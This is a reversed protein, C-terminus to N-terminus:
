KVSVKITLEQIIGKGPEKILNEVEYKLNYASSTVEKTDYEFPIATSGNAILTVETSIKIFDPIDFFVLSMPIDSSNKIILLREDNKSNKEFSFEQNTITVSNSFIAELYEEKAILKDQYYVATRQNDLAERISEATKEKAFVITSPRHEGNNIGYDFTIPNHVDSTSMMTLNKDLCWQHAKPYYTNGNVVEIGQFYEKQFLNEHLDSWVEIGEPHPYSPHNWFVFAGQDHAEKIAAISDKINLKESDKIFIANLHGPPMKRTIESGKILMFNLKDAEPKAVLFSRNNDVSVDQKHPHYEIHDTISIADLGESWAEQVRITPWVLGDSFVTHIHFDCVLSKYGLIDPINVETRNLKQAQVNICAFCILFCYITPILTRSIKM